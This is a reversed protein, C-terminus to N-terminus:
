PWAAGDDHLPTTGDGGLEAAVDGFLAATLVRLQCHETSSELAPVMLATTGTEQSTM